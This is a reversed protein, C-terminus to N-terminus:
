TQKKIESPLLNRREFRERSEILIEQIKAEFEKKPQLATWYEAVLIGDKDM